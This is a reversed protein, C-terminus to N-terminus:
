ELLKLGVTGSGTNVNELGAKTNPLISLGLPGWPPKQGSISQELRSGLVLVGSVASTIECNVNPWIYIGMAKM